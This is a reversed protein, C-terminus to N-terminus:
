IILEQAPLFARRLTTPTAILKQALIRSYEQTIELSALTPIIILVLAAISRSDGAGGSHVISVPINFGGVLSMNYFDIPFDLLFEALIAPPEGSGSACETVSGCDGM